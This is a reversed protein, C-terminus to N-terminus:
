RNGNSSAEAEPPQAGRRRGFVVFFPNLMSEKNYVVPQEAILAKEWSGRSLSGLHAM